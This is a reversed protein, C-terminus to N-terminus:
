LTKLTARALDAQLIDFTPDIALAQKLYKSSTGRDGLAKAIM